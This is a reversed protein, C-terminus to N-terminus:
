VAQARQILGKGEGGNVRQLRWLYARSVCVKHFPKLSGFRGPLAVRHPEVSDYM